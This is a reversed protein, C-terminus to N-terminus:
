SALNLNMNGIMNNFNGDGGVMNRLDLSNVNFGSQLGQVVAQGAVQNFNFNQVGFAPVFVQMLSAFAPVLQLQVFSGLVQNFQLGNLADVSLGNGLGQNLGVAINHVGGSLLAVMQLQLQEQLQEQFVQQQFLQQIQAQNNLDFFQGNNFQGNFQGCQSALIQQCQQLQNQDLQQNQNRNERNERNEGNRGQQNQNRQQGEGEKRQQGEGEKRQQGESAAQTRNSQQQQQVEGKQSAQGEKKESAEKNQQEASAAEAAPQAAAEARRFVDAELSTSREALQSPPVVVASVLGATFLLVSISKM